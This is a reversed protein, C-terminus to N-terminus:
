KTVSVFDPLADITAVLKTQDSLRDYIRLEVAQAGDQGMATLLKGDATWATRVGIMSPIGNALDRRQGSAVDLTQLAHANWDYVAISAGDPSWAASPLPGPAQDLLRPEGGLPLLGFRVTENGAGPQTEWAMLLADREPAPALMQGARLAHPEANAHAEVSYTTWDTPPTGGAAKSFVLLGNDLWAPAAFFFSWPLIPTAAGNDVAVTWLSTEWVPAPDASRMRLLAIHSGDPAFAYAGIQSAGKVLVREDSGDAGIMHLGPTPCGDVSYAIHKGDPSVALGNITCGAETSALLQGPQGALATPEEADSDLAIARLEGRQEAVDFRAYVLQRDAGSGTEALRQRFTAQDVPQLTEAIAAAAEASLLFGGVNYVVGAPREPVTSKETWIIGWGAGTTFASGDVGRVTVPRSGPRAESWPGEGGRIWVISQPNTPDFLTLEWRDAEISSHAADVRLGDPLPEPWLLPATTTAPEASLSPQVGPETPDPSPLTSTGPAAPSTAAAVISPEPSAITGVGPVACGCLLALMFIILVAIAIRPVRQKVM